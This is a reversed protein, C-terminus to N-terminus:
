KVFRLRLDSMDAPQISDTYVIIGWTDKLDQGNCVLCVMFLISTLITKLLKM